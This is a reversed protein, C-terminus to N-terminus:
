AAQAVSFTISHRFERVRLETPYLLQSRVLQDPTRIEGPAGNEVLVFKRGGPKSGREPSGGGDDTPKKFLPNIKMELRNDPHVIIAPIIAQLIQQKQLDCRKSFDVMASRIKEQLTKEARRVKLPCTHGANLNLNPKNSWEM